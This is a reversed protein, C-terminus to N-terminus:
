LQASESEETQQETPATEETQETEETPTQAPEITQPETTTTTQPTTTEEIQPIGPVAGEPPDKIAVLQYHDEVKKLEYIMVFMRGNESKREPRQGISRGASRTGPLAQRARRAMRRLAGARGAPGFAPIGQETRRAALRRKWRRKRLPAADAAPGAPCM